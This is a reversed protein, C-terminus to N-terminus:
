YGSFHPNEAGQWNLTLFGGFPRYDCPSGKGLVLYKMSGGRFSWRWPAVWVNKAWRTNYFRRETYGLLCLPMTWYDCPYDHPEEEFDQGKNIYNITLRGIVLSWAPIGGRGKIFAVRGGFINM